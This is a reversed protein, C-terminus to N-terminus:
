LPAKFISITDSHTQGRCSDPAAASDLTVISYRVVLSSDAKATFDAHNLFQGCALTDAFLSRPRGGSSDTVSFHGVTFIHLISAPDFKGQLSDFSFVGRVVTASDTIKGSSNALRVLGPAAGFARTIVTDRGRDSGTTDLPCDAGGPLRLTSRPSFAPPNGIAVSDLGMELIQSCTYGPHFGKFLIPTASDALIYLGARFFKLSDIRIGEVTQPDREISTGVGCGLLTSLGAIASIAAAIRILRSPALSTFRM